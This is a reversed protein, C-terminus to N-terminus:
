AHDGLAYSATSGASPPGPALWATASGTSPFVTPACRCRGSTVAPWVCPAWPSTTPAARRAPSGSPGKKAAGDSTEELQDQDEKAEALGEKFQNISSGMARALAPLKKAGFLLMIVGFVLIMEGLGFTLLGLSPVLTLM